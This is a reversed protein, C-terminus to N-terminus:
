GRTHRAALRRDLSVLGPGAWLLFLMVLLLTPALGLHVPGGVTRGATSIAGVMNVALGLAALRTGLGLLLALGGFLELVGVLYVLLSSEPLGYSVFKAVVERNNTSKEISIAIFAAGAFWRAVTPAFAARGDLRTDFVLARLRSM